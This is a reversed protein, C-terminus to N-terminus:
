LLGNAVQGMVNTFRRGCGKRVVTLEQDTFIGVYTIFNWFFTRNERLLDSIEKWKQLWGSYNDEWMQHSELLKAWLDDNEVLDKESNPWLLLFGQKLKEQEEATLDLTQESM